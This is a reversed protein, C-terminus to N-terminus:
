EDYPHYVNVNVLVGTLVFLGCLFQHAPKLCVFLQTNIESLLCHIWQVNPLITVLNTSAMQAM